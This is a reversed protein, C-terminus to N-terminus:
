TSAFACAYFVDTNRIFIKGASRLCRKKLKQAPFDPLVDNGYHVENCYPGFPFAHLFVANKAYSIISRYIM